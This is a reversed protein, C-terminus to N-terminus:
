SIFNLFSTGVIAILLQESEGVESYGRPNETQHTSALNLALGRL